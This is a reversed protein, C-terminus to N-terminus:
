PQREIEDWISDLDGDAIADYGTRGDFVKRHLCMWHAAKGRSGTYQLLRQALVAYHREMALFAEDVLQQRAAYLHEMEASIQGFDGPSKFRGSSGGVPQAPRAASQRDDNRLRANM